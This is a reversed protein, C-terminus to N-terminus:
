STDFANGQKSALTVPAGQISGYTPVFKINNRVWNYIKVPNNGLSQALQTIAPTIIVEESTGLASPTPPVTYGKAGAVAVKGTAPAPLLKQLDADNDAPDRPKGETKRTTLQRPGKTRAVKTTSQNKVWHEVDHLAAQLQAENGN